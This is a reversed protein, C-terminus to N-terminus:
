QPLGRAVLGGADVVLPVTQDGSCRITQCKFSRSKGNASLACCCGARIPTGGVEELLPMTPRAQAKLPEECYRSAPATLRPLVNVMDAQTFMAALAVFM